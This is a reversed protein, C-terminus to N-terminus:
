RLKSPSPPAISASAAADILTYVRPPYRSTARRSTSSRRTVSLLAAADSALYHDDDGIGVVLPSGVRAGVIRGPERTSLVAIAYAGHFERDGGPSRSSIAAATAM